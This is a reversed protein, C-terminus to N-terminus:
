NVEDAAVNVQSINEYTEPVWKLKSDTWNLRLWAHTELVGNKEDLDMHIVTLGLDCKTATQFNEPRNLKDYGKLLDAKLKDINTENWM